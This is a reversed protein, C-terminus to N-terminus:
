VLNKLHCYHISLMSGAFSSLFSWGSGLKQLRLLDGSFKTFDSRGDARSLNDSGPGTADLLNVGKSLDFSILNVGFYHDVFDYSAGINIIRLRDKTINSGLLDTESNRATFGMYGSINKGRSRIFPHTFKFM